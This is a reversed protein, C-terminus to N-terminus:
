DSEVVAPIENTAYHKEACKPCAVEHAVGDVPVANILETLNTGCGKRKKPDEVTRPGRCIYNIGKSM